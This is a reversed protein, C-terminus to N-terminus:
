VDSWFISSTAPRPSQVVANVIGETLAVAVDSKEARTVDAIMAGTGGPESTWQLEINARDFSGNEECLQWVHNFHEPVGTIRLVRKSSASTTTPSVLIGSSCPSSSSM